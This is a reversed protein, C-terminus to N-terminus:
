QRDGEDRNGDMWGDMRLPACTKTGQCLFFDMGACVDKLNEPKVQVIDNLREREM